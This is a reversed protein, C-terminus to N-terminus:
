FNTTFQMMLVNDHLSTRGETNFEYAVKFFATAYFYYNLGVTYQRRNVPAAVPSSFTTVDLQKPDIGTFHTESFRFVYELREGFANRLQKLVTRFRRCYPCLFDTYSVVRIIPETTAGGRVHASQTMRTAM